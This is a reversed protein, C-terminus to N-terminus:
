FWPKLKPLFFDVIPKMDLAKENYIIEKFSEFESERFPKNYFASYLFVPLIDFVSAGSKIKHAAFKIELISHDLLDGKVDITKFDVDIKLNGKKHKPPESVKLEFNIKSIIDLVDKLFRIPTDVLLDYEIGTLISLMQLDNNKGEDLSNLKVIQGVTIDTIHTPINYKKGLIKTKIM